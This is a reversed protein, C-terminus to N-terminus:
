NVSMKLWHVVKDFLPLNCYFLFFLPPPFHFVKEEKQFALRMKYGHTHYSHRAVRTRSPSCKQSLLQIVLQLLSYSANMGSFFYCALCIPFLNPHWIVGLLWPFSFPVLLAHYSPFFPFSLLSLPSASMWARGPLPSMPRLFGPPLNMLYQPKEARSM